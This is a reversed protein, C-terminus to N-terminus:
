VEEEEDDWDEEDDGDEFEEPEHMHNANAHEIKISLIEDIAKQLGHRFEAESIEVVDEPMRFDGAGYIVNEYAITLNGQERESSTYTLAKWSAEDRNELVAAYFDNSRFFKGVPFNMRAVRGEEALRALESNIKNRQEILMQEQPSLSISM